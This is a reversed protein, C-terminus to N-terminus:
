LETSGDRESGGCGCIAGKLGLRGYIQPIVRITAMRVHLAKNFATKRTRPGSCMLPYHRVAVVEQSRGVSVHHRERVEVIM